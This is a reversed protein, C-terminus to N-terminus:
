PQSVRPATATSCGGQEGWVALAPAVKRCLSLERPSTQLPTPTAIWNARFPAPSGMSIALSVSGSGINAADIGSPMDGASLAGVSIAGGSSSQKLVQGAGGTASLDSGTGGRALGLSGSTIDSAAHTHNDLQSQISSTVGDLYGFETNSVSGSGINAADVGSPMDGASIAGVTIAGGSTSQKLVQGAGGTASLDSGTGGRALGLSGSTIDSAAHTHSDLQSQISSTVGDLYGFETNSVSGSGINAADVGSPIQSVALKSSGDLGAYGSAQNKESLAQKAALAADLGPVDSTGTLADQKGDFTSWDTSTLHGNQGSTAAPMSLTLDSSLAGGGSLPATTSITRSTEVLGADSPSRNVFQSSGNDYQLVEKDAPTGVTVDDLDDLSITPLQSPPVKGSGDLGAVGASALSRNVWTGSTTDYQLVDNDALTGMDVDLLEALEGAGSSAIDFRPTTTNNYVAVVIQDAKIRGAGVQEDGANLPIAGSDNSSGYDVLLSASAPSDVNAKFVIIQGASLSDLSGAFDVEYPAGSGTAARYFAAGSELDNIPDAFQNVHSADITQGNSVETFETSM